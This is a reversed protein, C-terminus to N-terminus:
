TNKLLERKRAESNLYRARCIAPVPSKEGPPVRVRILVCPDPYRLRCNRDFRTYGLMSISTRVPGSFVDGCSSWIKHRMMYNQDDNKRAAHKGVGWQRMSIKDYCSTFFARLANKKQTGDKRRHTTAMVSRDVDEEGGRPFLYVGEVVVPQVFRVGLIIDPKDSNNNWGIAAVWLSGDGDDPSELNFAIEFDWDVHHLYNYSVLLYLPREKSPKSLHYDKNWRKHNWEVTDELKDCDGMTDAHLGTKAVTQDSCTSRFYERPPFGERAAKEDQYTYVVCDHHPSAVDPTM